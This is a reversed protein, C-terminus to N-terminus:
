GLDYPVVLFNERLESVDEVAAVIVGPGHRLHPYTERFALIGRADGPADRVAGGQLPHGGLAQSSSVHQLYAALGTDHGEIHSRRYNM